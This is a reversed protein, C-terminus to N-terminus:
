ERKIIKGKWTLDIFGREINAEAGSGFGVIFDDKVGQM